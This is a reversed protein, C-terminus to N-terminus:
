HYPENAAGIQPHIWGKHFGSSREKDSTNIYHGVIKVNELIGNAGYM